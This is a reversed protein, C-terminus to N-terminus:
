VERLEEVEGLNVIVVEHGVDGAESSVVAHTLPLFPQTARLFLDQEFGPRLHATGAVLYPGVRVIVEQTQRHLRKEPASVHPPPVVLLVSKPALTVWSGPDAPDAGEPLFPLEDGRQLLDTIREETPRVHGSVEIERTYVRMPELPPEGAPEVAEPERRFLRDLATGRPLRAM